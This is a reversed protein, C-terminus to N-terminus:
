VIWTYKMGDIFDSMDLDFQKDGLMQQERQSIRWLCLRDEKRQQWQSAYKQGLPELQDHLEECKNHKYLSNLQRKLRNMPRKM